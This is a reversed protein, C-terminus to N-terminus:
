RYCRRQYIWPISERGQEMRSFGIKELIRIEEFASRNTECEIYDIKKQTFVWALLAQLAEDMYKENAVDVDLASFFAFFVGRNRPPGMFQFCGVIVKNTREVVIWQTYWDFDDHRKTAIRMLKPLLRIYEREFQPEFLKPSHELYQQCSDLLSLQGYLLADFKYQPWSHPLQKPM